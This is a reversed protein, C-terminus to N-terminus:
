VNEVERKFVHYQEGSILGVDWLAALYGNIRSKLFVVHADSRPQELWTVLKELLKMAFKQEEIWRKFEAM